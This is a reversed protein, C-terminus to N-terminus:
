PLHNNEIQTIVRSRGMGPYECEEGPKLLKTIEKLLSELERSNQLGGLIM